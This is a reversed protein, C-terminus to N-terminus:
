YKIEVHAIKGTRILSILLEANTQDYGLQLLSSVAERQIKERHKINAVRKAEADAKAKQEAAVRAREAEIAAQKEAEAKAATIEARRKQDAEYNIRAQEANKRDQEARSEAEARDIEAKRLAAAAREREVAAEAEIRKVKEEAERKQHEVAMREAEAKAEAAKREREVREAELKAALAAQREAELRAAEAAQRAIAEDRERRKRAEEEARLRALEAKEADLAVRREINHSMSKVADDIAYTARASFEEWNRDRMAEIEALRDRMADIPLTAWNEGTYAAGKTIESLEREHEAVRRADAEEWETLPRRIEEKLADLAIVAKRRDLNIAEIKKRWDEGPKKGAEDIATKSRAIRHALSACAARGQKTSIDVPTARAQDEIQRIAADLGGTFAAIAADQTVIALETTM